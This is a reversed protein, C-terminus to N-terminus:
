YEQQLDLLESASHLIVLHSFSRLEYQLHIFVKPLLTIELAKTSNIIQEGCSSMNM